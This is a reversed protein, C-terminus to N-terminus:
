SAYTETFATGGSTLPGATLTAGHASEHYQYLTPSISSLPNGNVMVNTFGFNNMRPLVKSGVAAVGMSTCTVPGASTDTVSQSTTVDDVTVSINAGCSETMTITDGPNPRVSGISGQSSGLDIFLSYASALSHGSKYCEMNLNTLIGGNNGASFVVVLSTNKKSCTITPLTVTATETTISATTSSYGATDSKPIKATAPSSVLALSLTAGGLSIAAVRLAPSKSLKM